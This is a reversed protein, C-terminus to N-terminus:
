SKLVSTLSPRFNQSKDAFRGPERRAAASRTRGSDFPPKPTAPPVRRKVNLGRDRRRSRWTGNMWGPVGYRPTKGPRALGRIVRRSFKSISYEEPSLASFPDSLEKRSLAQHRRVLAKRRGRGEGGGSARNM